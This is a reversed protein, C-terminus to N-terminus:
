WLNGNHFHGGGLGPVEQCGLWCWRHIVSDWVICINGIGSDSLTSWTWGLLRLRWHADESVLYLRFQNPADPFQPFDSKAIHCEHVQWLMIVGLYSNIVMYGHCTPIYSCWWNTVINKEGICHLYFIALIDYSCQSTTAPNALFGHVQWLIIVGLYCNIISM